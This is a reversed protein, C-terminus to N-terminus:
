LGGGRQPGAPAEVLECLLAELRDVIPGVEFNREAVGRTHAPDLLTGVRKRSAMEMIAAALTEPQDDSLSISRECRYQGTGNTAGTIVPTGCCLAEAVSAGFNEEDSPQVLVDTRSLLRTIEERSVHPVYDLLRPRDFGEILEKLGPAFTFGGVVKAAVPIGADDVLRLADLFLDLRKRPVIRGLWLLELAGVCVARDSKPRSVFKALDYPVPLVKVAEKRLRYNAQLLDRSVDSGVILRDSASYNPLDFRSRWRGYALMATLRMRGETKLLLEFHKKLSRVDTGPAGQVWSIAPLDAVRGYAPTNLFLVACAPSKLHELRMISMVTKAFMRHNIIGTVNGLPGLRRGVNEHLADTKPNTADIYSFSDRFRDVLDAPYIFSRKSVFRVRHGRRLLEELVLYMGGVTSAGDRVVHGSM